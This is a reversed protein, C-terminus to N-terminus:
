SSVFIQTRGQSQSKYKGGTDYELIVTHKGPQLIPKEIQIIYAILTYEENDCNVTEYVKQLSICDIKYDDIYIAIDQMNLDPQIDTVERVTGNLVIPYKEIKIQPLIMPRFYLFLMNKMGSNEWVTLGYIEGTGIKFDHTENRDVCMKWSWNELTTKKYSDDEVYFADYNGNPVTVCYDGNRNSWAGIAPSKGGFERREFVVPAPFPDGNFNTIKGQIESYKCKILKTYLKKRIKIAVRILSPLVSINEIFFKVLVWNNKLLVDYGASDERNDIEISKAFIKEKKDFVSVTLQIPFEIKEFDAYIGCHTKPTFWEPQLIEKESQGNKFWWADIM